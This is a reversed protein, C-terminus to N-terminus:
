HMVNGKMANILDTTINNSNAFCHLHQGGGIIKFALVQDMCVKKEVSM